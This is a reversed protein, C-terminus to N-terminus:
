GGGRKARGAPRREEYLQREFAGVRAILAAVQVKDDSKERMADMQVRALLKAVTSSADFILRQEWIPRDAMKVEDLSRSAFERIRMLGLRAGDALLEGITWQEIPRDGPGAPLAEIVKQAM